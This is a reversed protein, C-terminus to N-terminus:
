KFFENYVYIGFLTIWLWMWVRFRKDTFMSWMFVLVLAVYWIFFIKSLLKLM